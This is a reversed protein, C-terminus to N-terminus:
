RSTKPGRGRVPPLSRKAIWDAVRPWLDKHAEAGVSLGIHGGPMSIVKVDKSPVVKALNRTSDPPVIHDKEGVVILLPMTLSKMDVPEDAVRLRNRVLLNQQYGVRIFEKYFQGAVPVGDGIWKEMRFFMEVFEQDDIHDFLGLYKLYSNGLPDLMLFGGNLFEAPVNGYAEVVLDPDFNEARTWVHLLGGDVHFDLPSAMLVLNRVKRPHLAAYVTALYGGICYGMLSVQEVGEYLLIQNVAREMYGQVYDELGLYRDYSSPIGWDIMYVDVGRKQLAGIVSRDPQLDLIYPKNILAYVVLLPPRLPNKRVPHYHLLRMKDEQYVVDCPTMGVEVHPPNALVELGKRIRSLMDEEIDPKKVDEARGRM